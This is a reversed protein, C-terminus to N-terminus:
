KAPVLQSSNITRTWLEKGEMSMVRLVLQREEEPGTVDILAYQREFTSSGPMRFFNLEDANDRPKATLPGVTLDYLNYSNAHVLRTLEGYYKGGSIFFLGPIREDRLMQLLKSHEREAYSLNERSDAPNLIPSGAVIFKFTATSRIIEQRFWEIQEKGLISAVEQSTPTDNRYSRVDLIFFDVDARRFRTAIGELSKIKVPQPWFAKFSSEAHDRFSYHRGSHEMGYDAGGWTAYNPVSSLLPSLEPISRAKTYRKLYGSKSAWDSERLHATNGLWLMIDPKKEVISSFINYGGGLTQYPPEFGDEVVYHAGGIAIRFDPPPTRGHYFAPSKFTYTGSVLAGNLEVRYTYTKGPEVEHLVISATNGLGSDTEVPLSWHAKSGDGADYSIRVLAPEETQVWVTAERLDVHGLMPGNLIGAQLSSSTIVLLGILIAFTRSLSFM